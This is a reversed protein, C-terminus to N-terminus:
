NNIFEEAAKTFTKKRTKNITSESKKIKENEINLTRRFHIKIESLDRNLNNDTKQVVLFKELLEIVKETELKYLKAIDQLWIESNLLEIKLEDFDNYIIKSNENKNENEMHKAYTKNKIEKNKGTANKRRSASYKKRKIIEQKLRNNFYLGNKFDFKKIIKEFISTSCISLVHKAQAKTFSGNNFQFILLEFYAGKEEFTMGMTGGLWDGPYFLFAPDKM